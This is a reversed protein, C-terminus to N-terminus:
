AVQEHRETRLPGVAVFSQCSVRQPREPEDLEHGSAESEGGVEGVTTDLEGVEVVIVVLRRRQPDDGGDCCMAAVEILGLADTLAAQVDGLLVNREEDDVKM